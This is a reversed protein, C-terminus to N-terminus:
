PKIKILKSQNPNVIPMIITLIGDHLTARTDDPSVNFPLDITRSLEGWHCEQLYIRDSEIELPPTDAKHITLQNAGLSVSVRNLDAGLIPARVVLRDGSRFLDIPLELGAVELESTDTEPEIKTFFTDRLM